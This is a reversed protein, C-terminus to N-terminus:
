SVYGHLLSWLLKLSCGDDWMSLLFYIEKNHASKSNVRKIIKMYLM